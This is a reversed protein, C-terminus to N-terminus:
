WPPSLLGDLGKENDVTYGSSPAETNQMRSAPLTFVRKRWIMEMVAKQRSLRLDQLLSVFKEGSPAGGCSVRCNSSSRILDNAGIEGMELRSIISLTAPPLAQWRALSGECVFRQNSRSGVALAPPEELCAWKEM